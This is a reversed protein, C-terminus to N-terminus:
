GFSINPAQITSNAFPNTQIATRFNAGAEKQGAQAMAGATAVAGMQMYNSTQTAMLNQQRVMQQDLFRRIIPEQQRMREMDVQLQNNNIDNIGAIATNMAGGQIIRQVEAQNQANKINKTRTASDSTKGTPDKGTIGAKVNEAAAGVGQGALASLAGGAGYALLAAPGKLRSALAATGVMGAGTTLVNAAAELPRGEAASQIAGGASLLAGGLLANRPMLLGRQQAFQKAKRGGETAQEKISTAKARLKQELTEPTPGALSINGTTVPAAGAQNPVGVSMLSMSSPSLSALPGAYEPSLLNLTAGMNGMGGGYGYLASM